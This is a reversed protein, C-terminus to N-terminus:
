ESGYGGMNTMKIELIYIDKLKLIHMYHSGVTYASDIDLNFFCKMANRGNDCELYYHIAVVNNDATVEVWWPAPFCFPDNWPQVLQWSFNGGNFPVGSSHNSPSLLLKNVHLAEKWPFGEMCIKIEM